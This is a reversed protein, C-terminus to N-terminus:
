IYHDQDARYPLGSPRCSKLWDPGALSGFFVNLASVASVASFGLSNEAIEAHEANLGNKPPDQAPGARTVTVGM